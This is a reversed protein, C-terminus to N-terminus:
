SARASRSPIRKVQVVSIPIGRNLDPDVYRDPLSIGVSLRRIGIEIPLVREQSVGFVVTQEEGVRFGVSGTAHM